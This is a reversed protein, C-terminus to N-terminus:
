NTIKQNQMKSIREYDSYESQYKATSLLSDLTNEAGAFKVSDIKNFNVSIYFTSPSKSNFSIKEIADIKNLSLNINHIRTGSMITSGGDLYGDLQQILLPLNVGRLKFQM